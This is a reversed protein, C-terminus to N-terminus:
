ILFPFLNIIIVQDNDKLRKSEEKLWSPLSSLTSESYSIGRTQLSRAETEFKASCDACCNLQIM